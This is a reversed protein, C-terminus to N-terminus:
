IHEFGSRWLFQQYKSSLNQKIVFRYSSPSTKKKLIALSHSLQSMALICNHINNQQVYYEYLKIITHKHTGGVIACRKTVKKIVDESYTVKLLAFRASTSAHAHVCFVLFIRCQIWVTRDNRLFNALLALQKTFLLVVKNTFNHDM